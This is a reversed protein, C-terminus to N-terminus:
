PMLKKLTAPISLGPKAPLGDIANNTTFSNNAFSPPKFNIASSEYLQLRLGVIKGFFPHFPNFNLFHGIFISVNSTLSFSHPTYIHFLSLIHSIPHLTSLPLTQPYSVPM